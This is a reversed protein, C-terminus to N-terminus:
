YSVRHENPTDAIHKNTAMVHVYLLTYERKHKKLFFKNSSLFIGDEPPPNLVADEPLCGCM